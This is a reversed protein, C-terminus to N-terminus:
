IHILSLMTTNSGSNGGQNWGTAAGGAGITITAGGTSYSLNDRFLLGGAGGGSPNHSGGNGGGAVIFVDVVADTGVSTVTWTGSTTFKHLKYNKSNYTYTYITGGSAVPATWWAKGHGNSMSITGSSVDFLTRVNADNMSITATASNGIEVNVANLSIAGSSPLAM